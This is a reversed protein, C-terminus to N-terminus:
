LLSPEKRSFCFPGNEAGIGEEGSSNGVFNTLWNICTSVLTVCEQAVIASTGSKVCKRKEKPFSFKQTIKLCQAIKPAVFHFFIKQVLFFSPIQTYFFVLRIPTPYLMAQAAGAGTQLLLSPHLFLSPNARGKEVVFNCIEFFNQLSGRAREKSYFASNACLEDDKMNPLLFPTRPINTM